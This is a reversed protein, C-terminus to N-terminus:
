VLLRVKQLEVRQPSNFEVWCRVQVRGLMTNKQPCTKVLVRYSNGALVKFDETSSIIDVLYASQLHNNLDLPERELDPLVQERMKEFQNTHLM